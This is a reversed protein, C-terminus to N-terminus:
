SLALHQSKEGIARRAFALCALFDERQLDSFETLL